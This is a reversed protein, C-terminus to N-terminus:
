RIIYKLIGITAIKAENDEPIEITQFGDKNLPQLEIKSHVEVGEENVTKESYFKKITYKGGYEEYYENVQSLVIEGERSGGHYREFVCLDGDKIKPLMSNGKAHVVFMERNPTFPLSSVDVWGETEPEEYKDFYGCAAQISYLPLFRTFRDSPSISNEKLIKWAKNKTKLAGFDIVAEKFDTNFAAEREENYFPLGWVNFSDAKTIWHVDAMQQIQLLFKEKWKDKLLLQNGKPEIFIQLNDYKADDGKIRLFLIYDPEFAGGEDFSYICVDKENRVLYIEDYKEKLKPMIGDIYKVLAKEESTGFNDNYAYWDKEFLDLTYDINAPNKQSRGFEKEGGSVNVKLIINDRFQKNFPLPLFTKTGRYTKGRTRLLPELQRLLEKAIYLKDAQGYEALSAYKGIVKVQLKALYNDSAVFEACSKLSPYLEHLADYNYTSFRSMASRVVHSGIRLFDFQPVTLSTLEEASANDGFIIGTAMKGTPMKVTFVKDLISKGLTGDDELEAMKKRENVFVIGKTYLRSKKFDDKMFLNIQEYHEAIIGTQVLANRLEQIYRPNHASHYHLKEVVRCPNAVDCDYKRKDIPLSDDSPARFPMYRAGRGILQAEQMTTKGPKGGNADRTDYLRVIDYLNLVDWGENLMDVAFIARIGNSADELSNLLRQKEPTITKGDVLLLRKESFDNQLELILNEDTVGNSQFYDFAALLDEKARNRINSIDSLKLTAVREKFAEYNAKNDKISKSKLMIVPKIDQGLKVFVKRKYQSLIMAQLARDLEDLDTVFTEVEKSYGDERFRKLTYDFIIKDDYKQAIAQDALDMTATFELLINPLKGNDRQFINDITREWNQVNEAEERSRKNAAKTEANLHHAEDAILVVPEATFDEYTVANEKEATLDAHLGQITTLCLNISDSDTGQFNKVEKVEVKRGEITLIPAFLYKSSSSNLFNDRTKEVINNSSVFFLFNRYGREYLYLMALAMMMTKGSSTAMHFLLHPSRQKGCFNKDPNMYTLFYKMCEEQYPRLRKSPNLGTEFYEPLQTQAINLQGFMKDLTDQLKAM